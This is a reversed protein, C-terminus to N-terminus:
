EEVDLTLVTSTVASRRRSTPVSVRASPGRENTDDGDPGDFDGLGGPDNTIYGIAGDAYGATAGVNFMGLDFLAGVNAAWGIGDDEPPDNDHIYRLAGAAFLTGWGGDWRVNAVADPVEQGEYDDDGDM